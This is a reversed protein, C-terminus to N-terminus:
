MQVSFFAQRDAWVLGPGVANRTWVSLHRLGYLTACGPLLPAIAIFFEETPRPVQDPLWAYLPLTGMYAPHFWGRHVELRPYQVAVMGEVLPRRPPGPAGKDLRLFDSEELQMYSVQSKAKIVESTKNIVIKDLINM